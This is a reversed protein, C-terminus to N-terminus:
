ADKSTKLRSFSFLAASLNVIALIHFAEGIASALAHRGTTLTATDLETALLLKTILDYSLRKSLLLVSVNLSITMGLNFLVNRIASAIGRRHEPVSSMISSTNPSLFLGNGAGLLISGLAVYIYPTELSITSLIFLALSGILLGTIAFTVYGYIDSLRGSLLSFVLFSLEFPLILIGTETASFGKAVEFYLTLLLMVSGFAISNLFQAIVGGTFSWIKFLRLDLIPYDIKLQWIAFSILSALSTVALANVLRRYSLGYGEFTLALLVSVMFVTFATFGPWDMKKAERTTYTEKLVARSWLTAFIGVPVNIWFILRWDWLGIILGGLTLGILSGIRFALSNISLAFALPGGVAADTVIAASVTTLIGGGLGQFFRTLILMLPNLSFGALLSGLTFVVFGAIYLKVRGYLDALRGVLLLMLTSGLMYAQTFWLAEEIDAHLANAVADLGVVVIRTDLGAMFAGITTVSLVTWLYKSRKIKDSANDQRTM